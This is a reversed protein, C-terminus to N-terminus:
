NIIGQQLAYRTFDANNKFGTKEIIRARHTSVTKISVHLSEAIETLSRGAAILKFIEFERDSLAAHAAQSSAGGSVEELLREALAASVYKGGGAVKRIATLLLEPASEKTLYGAAGQKLMRLAYQDEPYSSLVLTAVRPFESRIHRLLEVGTKGPLGIDLLVLDAVTHRLFAIAEAANSAEGVAQMDEAREIIHKLGERVVAHDDVVLVKILSM